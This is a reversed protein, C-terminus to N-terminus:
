CTVGTKGPQHSFGKVINEITTGANLIDQERYHKGILQVSMPLNKSNMGSPISVAPNGTINFFSTFRTIANGKAETRGATTLNVQEILPATIPCSPTLLVDVKKFIDEM